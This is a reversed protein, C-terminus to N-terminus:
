DRRQLLAIELMKAEAAAARDPSGIAKRYEDLADKDHGLAEALRGRLVAVEPKMEPAVGIVELDTARKAAGSIDKVELAALMADGLVIRQLPIPLSTIAFEVNKFKERAEAWKGQRSLALAKWLQSDFNTGIAPNALDKLGQAPRGMLSSAVSHVILAVTDDLGPKTDGARWLSFARPKWM